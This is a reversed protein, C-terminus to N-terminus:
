RGPNCFGIQSSSAGFAEIMKDRVQRSWGPGMSEAPGNNTAAIVILGEDGVLYVVANSGSSDSGLTSALARGQSDTNTYWGMGVGTGSKLLVHPGHLLDMSNSNLLEGQELNILITHLENVSLRAGHGGLFGWDIEADIPTHANLLPPFIEGQRVPDPWFTIPDLALPKTIAEHLFSKYSTGSVKDIIIALLSYNDNSYAFGEGPVFSLSQDLISTAANEAISQGEAAYTQKLGSQHTLLHFLTIKATDATVQPFYMAVSDDLKIIRREALTLTAIATLWKSISAVEYRIVDNDAPALGVNQELVVTNDCAVLVSGKFGQQELMELSVTALQIHASPKPEVNNKASCSAIFLLAVTSTTIKRIVKNKM